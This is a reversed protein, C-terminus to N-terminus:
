NYCGAAFAADLFEDCGKRFLLTTIPVAYGAELM